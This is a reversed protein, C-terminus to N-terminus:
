PFRDLVALGILRAIRIEPARDTNLILDYSLPDDVEAGFHTRLYRARAADEDEVYRTAAAADLNRAAAVRAIRREKSGVLRVHLTTASDALIVHAARGVVISGGMEALGLITQTTRILLDTRSPHLGLLEEVTDQLYSVRDEPMYQAFSAPLNHDTLIREVLSRDFVTWPAPTSPREAQLFSALCEAIALGGTGTQRSLTVTPMPPPRGSPHTRRGGLQLQLELYSQCRELTAPTKM